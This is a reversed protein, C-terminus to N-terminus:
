KLNEIAKILKPVDKRLLQEIPPAVLDRDIDTIIRQIFANLSDTTKERSKQLWLVLIKWLQNENAFKENRNRLHLFPNHKKNKPTWGLKYFYGLLVEAQDYNLEKSSAVPQGDLRLFKELLQHYPDTDSCEMIQRYQDWILDLDKAAIHIKIIQLRDAPIYKKIESKKM